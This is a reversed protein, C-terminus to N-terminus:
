TTPTKPSIVRLQTAAMIKKVAITLQAEVTKVSLDLLTAVEKYKMGDEKILKFILRCRPPLGAIAANLQKGMEASIMLKEPDATIHVMEGAVTSLDTTYQAQEKSLKTISENKVVTYLYVDLNHIAPLRSRKNWLMVLADNTIEEALEKTKVISFSLRFLRIFYHQYILKFAQQDDFMVIKEIIESIAIKTM